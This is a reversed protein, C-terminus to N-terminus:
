PKSRLTVLHDAKRLPCWDPTGTTTDAVTWEPWHIARCYWVTGHRRTEESDSYPCDHCGTAEVRKVDSM